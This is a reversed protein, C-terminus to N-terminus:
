GLLLTSLGIDGKKGKLAGAEKPPYGIRFSGKVLALAEYERERGEMEM